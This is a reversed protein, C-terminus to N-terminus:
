VSSAMSDRYGDELRLRDATTTCEGHQSIALFVAFAVQALVRAEM